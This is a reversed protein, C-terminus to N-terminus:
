NTLWQCAYVIIPGPDSLFFITGDFALRLIKNRDKYHMKKRILKYSSLYMYIAIYALIGFTPRHSKRIYYWLWGGWISWAYQDVQKIWGNGNEYNYLKRRELSRRRPSGKRLSLSSTNINRLSLTCAFQVLTPSAWQEFVQFYFQHWISVWLWKSDLYVDSIFTAGRWLSSVSGESNIVYHWITHM